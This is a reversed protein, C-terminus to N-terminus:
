NLQKELEDLTTRFASLAQNIPASTSMDVGADKLISIPDKSGGANLLHTKIREVAPKGEKLIQSSLATSAAFSTAYQYVYFNYNYFHPIRTWELANEQDAALSPGYYKQNLNQYLRNLAAANLTKGSEEMEHIEKEFEAFQTQRFLTTRFHELRQTLLNIREKKIKAHKYQMEWLLNENLTSAVEATFTAYGANIYDQSKKSYYSHMAHGLEHAITSVDDMTGQYNLLVFPHTDYSGWQYAGSRKDATSYVDIWGKSFATKLLKQYDSGMPKLGKIVLSEAEKYPIYETDAKIVPANMDYMHLRDVKLLKKKLAIYRHLDPLGKSVTKVLQSYVESPIDNQDLAAEVASPYKRIAASINHSKVQAQLTEAFTDQFSGLTEYYKKFAAKRFSRDSSEMISPFNSRSLTTKIGKSNKIPGFAIDKELTGYLANATGGLPSVKALLEESEKPLSHARTRVIDSLFYSYTKLQPHHIWTSIRNQPQELIEPVFWATNESITDSMKDAKNSLVQLKPNAANVDRSLSAYVSVKDSIRALESYDDLAGKLLEPSSGLKGQYKKKFLASLSSAKQRDKEWDKISSYINETKWKYQAPIESRSHYSPLLNEATVSDMPTFASLAMIAATLSLLHNKRM